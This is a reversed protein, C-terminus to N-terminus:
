IVRAFEENWNEYKEIGCNGNPEKKCNRQQSERTTWDDDDYEGKIKLAHNGKTKMVAAKFDKDALNM